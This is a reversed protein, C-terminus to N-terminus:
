YLLQVAATSSRIMVLKYSIIYLSYTIFTCFLDYLRDVAATGGFCSMFVNIKVYSERM